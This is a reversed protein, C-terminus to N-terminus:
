KVYAQIFLSIIKEKESEDQSHVWLWLYSSELNKLKMKKHDIIELMSKIDIVDYDFEIQLDICISYLDIINNEEYAQKSKIYMDLHKESNTKDPHTKKVIEKYIKKLKKKTEEDVYIITKTPDAVADSSDINETKPEDEIKPVEPEIGLERRKNEIETLFDARYENIMEKKYEDDVLLLNYEQFIKKIELQKLKDKM